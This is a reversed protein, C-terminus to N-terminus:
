RSLSELCPTCCNCDVVAVGFLMALPSRLVGLLTNRVTLVVFRLSGLAWGALAVMLRAIGTWFLWVCRGADWWAMLLATVFSGRGSRFPLTYLSIMTSWMGAILLLAPMLLVVALLAVVGPNQGTMFTLMVSTWEPIWLLPASLVTLVGRSEVPMLEILSQFM